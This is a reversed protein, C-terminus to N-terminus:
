VGKKDLSDLFKSIRYVRPKIREKLLVLEFYQPDQGGLEAYEELVIWGDQAVREVTGRDGINIYYGFDNGNSRIIRRVKDGVKFM